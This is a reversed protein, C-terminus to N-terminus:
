GMNGALALGNRRRFWEGHLARAGVEIQARMDVMRRKEGAGPFLRKAVDEVTEPGFEPAEFLLADLVMMAVPPITNRLFALRARASTVRAPAGDHDNAPPTRDLCSRRHGYGCLDVLAEYDDIASKEDGTIWGLRALRTSRELRRFVTPSAVNRNARGESEPTDIKQWDDRAMREPTPGLGVVQVPKKTKRQAKAM